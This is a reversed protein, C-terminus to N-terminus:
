VTKTYRGTSSDYEAFSTRIDYDSYYEYRLTVTASMRGGVTEEPVGGELTTTEINGFRIGIFAPVTSTYHNVETAAYQHEFTKAVVNAIESMEGFDTSYIVFIMNGATRGSSDGSPSEAYGYVLYPRDFKSIDPEEGLPVIPVLGKGDGDIDYHTSSLGLNFKLVEWVYSRILYPAIYKSDM